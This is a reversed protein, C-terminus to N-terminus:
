VAPMATTRMSCSPRFGELPGTSTFPAVPPTPEIARAPTAGPSGPASLALALAPVLFRALSSM